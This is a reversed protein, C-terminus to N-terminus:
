LSPRNAQKDERRNWMRTPPRLVFENPVLQLSFGSVFRLCRSARAQDLRSRGHAQRSKWGQWHSRHSRLLTNRVQEQVIAEGLKRGADTWSCPKRGFPGSGVRVVERREAGLGKAEQSERLM